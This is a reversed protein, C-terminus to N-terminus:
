ENEFISPKLYVITRDRVNQPWYCGYVYRESRNKRDERRAKGNEIANACSIDALNDFIKHTKEEQINKKIDTGIFIIAYFISGLFCINSIVSITKM